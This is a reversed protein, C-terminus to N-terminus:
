LHGGKWINLYYSALQQTTIKEERYREASASKAKDEVIQWKGRFVLGMSSHYSCCHLGSICCLLTRPGAALRVETVINEVITLIANATPNGMSPFKVSGMTANWFGAPIQPITRRTVTHAQTARWASVPTLLMPWWASVMCVGPSLSANLAPRHKVHFNRKGPINPKPM